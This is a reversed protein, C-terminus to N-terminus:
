LWKDKSSYLIHFSKAYINSSILGSFIYKRMKCQIGFSKPINNMEVM